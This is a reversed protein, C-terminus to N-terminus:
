TQAAVADLYDAARRLLEPSDGAHGLMINCNFCLWGRVKGTTHCHDIVYGEKDCLYCNGNSMSQLLEFETQTLGYRKLKNALSNAHRASRIKETSATNDGALLARERVNREKSADKQCQKCISNRWTKSKSRKYFEEVPKYENCKYCHNKIM